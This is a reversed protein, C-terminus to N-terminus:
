TKGVSNEERQNIEEKKDIDCKSDTENDQSPSRQQNSQLKCNDLSSVMEAYWVSSPIVSENNVSVYM